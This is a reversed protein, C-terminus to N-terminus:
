EWSHKALGLSFALAPENGIRTHCQRCVSVLNDRDLISGGQSRRVLEHIDVSNKHIFTSLGDHKAFIPCAFCLPFEALMESVIKRREVYTKETKKSRKAIPASSRKIPTRKIPTRKIPKKREM